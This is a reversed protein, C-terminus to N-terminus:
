LCWITFFLWTTYGVYIAMVIDIRCKIWDIYCVRRPAEDIPHQMMEEQSWDEGWDQYRAWDSHKKEKQKKYGDKPETKQSKNVDGTTLSILALVLFITVLLM